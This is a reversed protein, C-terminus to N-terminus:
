FVTRGGATAPPYGYDGGKAAWILAKCFATAVATSKGLSTAEQNVVPCISPGYKSWTENLM